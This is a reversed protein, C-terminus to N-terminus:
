HRLYGQELTSTGHNLPTRRAGALEGEQDRCAIGKSRNRDRCNQSRSLRRPPRPLTQFKLHAPDIAAPLKLALTQFSLVWHIRWTIFSTLSNPPSCYRM